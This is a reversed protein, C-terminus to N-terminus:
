SFCEENLLMHKAPKGKRQEFRDHWKPIRPVHRPREMFRYEVITQMPSGGFGGDSGIGDWLVGPLLLALEAGPGAIAADQPRPTGFDGEEHYAEQPWADEDEEEPTEDGLSEGFREMHERAHSARSQHRETLALLSCSPAHWCIQEVDANGTSLEFLCRGLRVDWAKIAHDLSSAFVIPVGCIDVLALSRLGTFSAAVEGGQLTHTPRALSHGPAAGAGQQGTLRGVEWCKILQDSNCASVLMGPFSAPASALTMECIYGSLGLSHGFLRGTVVGLSVDFLTIVEAGGAADDESKYRHELTTKPFSNNEAASVVCANLEGSLM